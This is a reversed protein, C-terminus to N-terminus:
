YWLQIQKRASASDRLLIKRSEKSSAFAQKVHRSSFHWSTKTHHLRVHTPVIQKLTSVTVTMSDNNHRGLSRQIEQQVTLQRIRPAPALPDSKTVDVVVVHLHIGELAMGHLSILRNNLWTPWSSGLDM